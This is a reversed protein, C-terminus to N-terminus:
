NLQKKSPKPKLQSKLKPKPLRLMFSRFLPKTKLFKVHGDDFVVDIGQPHRPERPWSVGTDHQFQKLISSDFYLPTEAYNDVRSMNLGDLHANMSYGFGIAAPCHFIADTKCYPYLIQSWRNALPHLEDYDRNYQMTALGMQKMNSQCAQGRKVGIVNAVFGLVLLSTAAIMGGFILIEFPRIQWKHKMTESESTKTEATKTQAARLLPFRAAHTAV